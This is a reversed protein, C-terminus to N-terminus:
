STNLWNISCLHAKWNMQSGHNMNCWISRSDVKVDRGIGVLYSRCKDQLELALKRWGNYINRFPSASRHRIFIM